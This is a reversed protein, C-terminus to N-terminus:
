YTSQLPQKPFHQTGNKLDLVITLYWLVSFEFRLSNKFELNDM